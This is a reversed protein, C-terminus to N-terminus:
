RQNYDDHSADCEDIVADTKRWKQTPSPRVRSDGAEDIAKRLAAWLVYRPFLPNPNDAVRVVGEAVAQIQRAADDVLFPVVTKSVLKFFLVTAFDGQRCDVPNPVLDLLHAPVSSAIRLTVSRRSRVVKAVGTRHIEAVDLNRSAGIARRAQKVTVKILERVTM